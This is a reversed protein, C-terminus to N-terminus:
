KAEALKNIIWDTTRYSYFRIRNRQIWFSPQNNNLYKIKVFNTYSNNTKCEKILICQRSNWSDKYIAKM